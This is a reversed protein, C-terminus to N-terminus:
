FFVIAEVRSFKLAVTRSQRYDPHNQFQIFDTGFTIPEFVQMTKGKATVVRVEGNDVCRLVRELEERFREKTRYVQM